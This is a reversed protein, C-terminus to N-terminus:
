IQGKLLPGYLDQDLDIKIEDASSTSTFEVAAGEIVAVPMRESAEGMTYVAAVSLADIVNVSTMKMKRGFLDPEGVLNKIAHFGWHALAIGLVGKRLPTTHSDTMLIGFNKIGSKKQFFEYLRRASDYPKKPYLLYDGSESNSEDIGASPIVLGEKITLCVGHATECLFRDAEREILARKSIESTPVTCKEAVSFLKSTIAIIVGERLHAGVKEWLFDELSDGSRFLSTKVPTIKLVGEIYVVSTQPELASNIRPKHRM